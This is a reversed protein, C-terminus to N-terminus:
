SLVRVRLGGMGTLAQKFGPKGSLKSPRDCPDCPEAGYVAVDGVLFQRGLLANLEEAGISVVINRRTDEPLFPTDRSANARDIANQSILTIDRVEGDRTKSWAGTGAEYRDGLLGRGPVAYAESVQQMPAGKAPAIFISVVSDSM